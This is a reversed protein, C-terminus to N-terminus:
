TRSHLLKLDVEVDDESAADNAGESYDDNDDEDDLVLAWTLNELCQISIIGVM